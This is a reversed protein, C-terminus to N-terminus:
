MNICTPKCYIDIYMGLEDQRSIRESIDEEHNKESIDEEHSKESINTLCPEAKLKVTQPIEAGMSEYRLTNTKIESGRPLKDNPEVGTGPDSERGSDVSIQQRFMNQSASKDCGTPSNSQSSKSSSSSVTYITETVSGRGSDSGPVTIKGSRSKSKPQNEDIKPLLSSLGSNSSDFDSLSSSDHSKGCQNISDMNLDAAETLEYSEESTELSEPNLVHM